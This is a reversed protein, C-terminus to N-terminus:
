SAVPGTRVLPGAGSIKLGAFLGVHVPLILAVMDLNAQGGPILSLVLAAAGLLVIAGALGVGLRWRSSRWVAGPLVVALVLSLLSLLLVNENVFSFRHNTFAWLGALIVGGIGTLLAWLVAVSGYALRWRSGARALLGLLGITGGLLVGVILYQLTFDTPVASVAFRDSDALHETAKVLPHVRGDPDRISIQDLYPRLEIPLFMAEWATLRQDVPRGLGLMLATYLTAGNETTRRTHDRYTFDTGVTDAWTRIQGGVVDDLADRIRTSCNDTFYNYEYERNEPRINWLLFDRLAARAAPPLDLEQSWISRGARSYGDLYQRVDGEGMSYRLLGKAFRGVFRLKDATTRGFDFRGYDYAWDRGTRHDRIWIANHGFREWSLEGPDFTLLHVSLEAGAVTDPLTRSSPPAQGTGLLVAAGVLWAGPTM